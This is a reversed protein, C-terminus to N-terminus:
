LWDVSLIPSFDQLSGAFLASYLAAWQHKPIQCWWSIWLQVIWCSGACGISLASWNLIRKLAAAVKEVHFKCKRESRSTNWRIKFSTFLSLATEPSHAGSYYTRPQHIRDLGCATLWHILLFFECSFLRLGVALGVWHQFGLVSVLAWACIMPKGTHAKCTSRPLLLWLPTCACVCIVAARRNVWAINEEWEWDKQYIQGKQKWQRENRIEVM